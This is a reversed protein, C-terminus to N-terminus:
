NHLKAAVQADACIGAVDRESEEATNVPRHRRDVARQLAIERAVVHWVLERIEESSRQVLAASEESLRMDRVGVILPGDRHFDAYGEVWTRFAIIALAGVRHRM